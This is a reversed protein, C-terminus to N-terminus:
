KGLGFETMPIKKKNIFGKKDRTWEEASTKDDGKLGVGKIQKLDHIYMSLIVSVAQSLTVAALDAIENLRKLTADDCEFSLDVFKRKKTAKTHTGSKGM